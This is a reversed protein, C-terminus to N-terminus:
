LVRALPGDKVVVASWGPMSGPTLKAILEKRIYILVKDVALDNSVSWELDIEYSDNIPEIQQKIFEKSNLFPLEKKDTWNAILPTQAQNYLWVDGIVNNEKLLYAYAVKGDDEIIVSYVDNLMCPFQDYFEKM